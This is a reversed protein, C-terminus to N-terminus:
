GDVFCSIKNGDYITIATIQQEFGYAATTEIDLYASHNRFHPFIRWAQGAPLLDLFYEPTDALMQKSEALRDKIYSYRSPSLNLAKSNTFDDWNLAGNEWFKQETNPGIGQIHMFTNTLM